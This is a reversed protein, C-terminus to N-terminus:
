ETVEKENEASVNVSNEDRKIRRMVSERLLPKVETFIEKSNVMM